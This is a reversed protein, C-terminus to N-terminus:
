ADVNEIVAFKVDLGAVPHFAHANPPTPSPGRHIASRPGHCFTLVAEDDQTAHGM